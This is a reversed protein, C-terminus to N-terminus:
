RLSVSLSRNGTMVVFANFVLAACSLLQGFLVELYCWLTQAVLATSGKFKCPCPVKLFVVHNVYLNGQCQMMAATTMSASYLLRKQKDDNSCSHHACCSDMAKTPVWFCGCCCCCCFVDIHENLLSARARAVGQCAAVDM